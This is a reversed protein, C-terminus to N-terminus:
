RQVHSYAVCVQQNGSADTQLILSQLGATIADNKSDANASAAATSTPTTSSPCPRESKLSSGPHQTRETDQDVDRLGRPTSPTRSKIKASVPTIGTQGPAYAKSSPSGPIHGHLRQSERKGSAMTSDNGASLPDLKLGRREARSISRRNENNQRPTGTAEPEAM